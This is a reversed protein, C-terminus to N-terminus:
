NEAAAEAILQKASRIHTDTIKEGGLLKAIAMAWEEGSLKKISTRTHDNEFIKEVIYHSDSMSAIQPLHTICIIQHSKSLNKLSRGVAQAIRGSVGIDIEDFIMVPLRDSEAQVSKLALMIRSLEGGSAVRALPKVASGPNVAILFEVNDIGRATTKLRKGNLAVFGHEDPTHEIAVKFETRQMGLRELHKVIMQELLSAKNKRAESLKICLESLEQRATEFNKKLKAISSDFNAFNDLEQRLEDRRKLVEDISGGYKKKLGSFLNLRERIEELRDPNFEIGSSYHQLVKAIEDVIIKASECENNLNALRSDIEKLEELQEGARALLEYASGESDYLQECIATSLQYLRESNELLKEERLLEEEEGEEPNVSEIEDLQFEFIEKKEESLRAKQHFEELERTMRQLQQYKNEVESVMETLGSFHDLFQLHKSIKLLSQHEHQGHLDVLIDGVQELTSVQVPTDNIFSRSRGSSLIERRLILENGNQDLEAQKLFNQVEGSGETSFIVEIVAKAAGERLSSVAARDGLVTNLAGLLISKGAGTEGTLINLGKDFTVSVDDLLAYNKVFLSKIM